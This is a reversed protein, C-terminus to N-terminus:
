EPNQMLDNLEIITKPLAYNLPRKWRVITPGFRERSHKQLSAATPFLREAEDYIQTNTLIRVRQECLVRVAGRFRADDIRISNPLCFMRHKTSNRMMNGNEIITGGWGKTAKCVWTINNAHERKFKYLYGSPDVVFPHAHEGRYTFIAESKRFM